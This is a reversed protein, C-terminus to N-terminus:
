PAELADMLRAWALRQAETGLHFTDGLGSAHANADRIAEILTRLRDREQDVAADAYAHMQDATYTGTEICEYGGIYIPDDRFYRGEPVPLPPKTDTM